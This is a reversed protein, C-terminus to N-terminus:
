NGGADAFGAEREITGGRPVMENIKHISLPEDRNVDGPINTLKKIKEWLAQAQEPPLRKGYFDLQETQIRLADNVSMKPNMDIIITKM